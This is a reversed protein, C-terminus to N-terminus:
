ERSHFVVTTVKIGWRPAHPTLSGVDALVWAPLISGSLLFRWDQMCELGINATPPQFLTVNDAIRNQQIANTLM